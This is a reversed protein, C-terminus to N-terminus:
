QKSFIKAKQEFCRSAKIQTPHHHQPQLNKFHGFTPKHIHNLSPLRYTSAHSFRYNASDIKLCLWANTAKFAQGHPTTATPSTKQTQQLWCAGPSQDMLDSNSDFNRNPGVRLALM